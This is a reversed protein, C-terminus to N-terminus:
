NGKRLKKINAIDEATLDALAPDAAAASPRNLFSQSFSERKQWHMGAGSRTSAASFYGPTVGQGAAGANTDLSSCSPLALLALAPLILLRKM